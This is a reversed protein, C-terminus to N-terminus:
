LVNGTNLYIMVAGAGGKGGETFPSAYSPNGSAAFNSKFTGTYGASGASGYGLANNNAMRLITGLTNTWVKGVANFCAGLLPRNNVNGTGGGGFGNIGPETENTMSILLSPNYQFYPKDILNSLSALTNYYNYISTAYYKNSESISNVIANNIPILSTILFGKTANTSSGHSSGGTYTAKSTAGVVTGNGGAIPLVSATINGGTATINISSNSISVFGRSTTGNTTDNTGPNLTITYKVGKVM